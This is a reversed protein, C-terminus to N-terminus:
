IPNRSIQVATLDSMSNVFYITPTKRKLPDELRNPLLTLEFGNQYGPAGMAKLRGALPEAYCNKCGPSVKTCGVTPNWTQDAWEISTVTTM